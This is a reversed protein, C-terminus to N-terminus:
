LGLKLTFTFQKPMPLAVGESNFFEPDQGRLAKDAYLLAINNANFALAASKLKMRQAFSKPVTYNLAITKLRVFSGDVVRVTSYNYYNYPFTSILDKNTQWDIISPINTYQEDGPMIWRDKFENPMADLDSYTAKFKSDLRIKNQLQYSIFINLSLGKYTLTNNFGGTILPDVSGEYNLHDLNTSQLSVYNSVQGAQNIFQPIGTLHDLSHYVVSYLGRVPGGEIAGGEARVLDWIRPTNKLNRITNTNYGFTFNTRYAFNTNSYVRGGLTMEIGKSDMDAYNAIKTSQGGIGHVKITNILNFSNRKYMDINFNIRNNFLGLDLGLNTEYQSEWTLESNELSAIDIMNENNTLNGRKTLTNNYIVATNIANGMSATLGYTGRLKLQSIPTVQQMFEEEDINWAGSITWTPLYRATKSKGMKNSGDYRGTLNIVYKNNYAYNINSFMSVFRDYSYDVGFYSYNNESAQKIIHYDTFVTGGKYYQLGYGNFYTNQRDAYRIEQGLFASIQHIDDITTKYSLTHRGYFSKLFDENRIYFGGEPLVSLNDRIPTDPDNYLYGNGNAIIGDGNGDARYANAMNSYETAMHERTNKVYRFSGLVKYELNDLFKYGVEAQGKIDMVNINIKNEALENIINFPAYNKTFYELDGYEDWATLTRSTNLAYSYPNIDFDRSVEGFVASNLRGQTGPALQDRLSATVITSASLKDNFKYDTRINATYRKVDDAITWGNDKYFSGSFYHQVHETGSSVSLAHEQIFSNNFLIDFWNTNTRAYRRLYNEKAEPTNPMGYAGTTNDYLDIQQYMKAFVGGNQARLNQSFNLLGKKEMELYVSMQDVSNMINFSGYSPKLYTSYNGSYNVQPKGVKGKKTNIVVVGNMARAGYMATASADKLIELSEIDETNIGAVSSGILTLADGSSLQDNSINVVDELVVGDVVWLPKNDGTISTVGRVRLKPASGFTGSVNQVSVGAVRGELMRSVDTTGEIKIDKMQVTAASGTFLKKNITQYGTSVVDVEEIINNEEQLVIKIPAATIKIRQVQYGLFTILLTNGVQADIVFSGDQRSSTQKNTEIVTITVGGLKKANVNEITGTIPTQKHSISTAKPTNSEAISITNGVIKYTLDTKSLITKLVDEINDSYINLDSVAVRDILAKEYFFNYKTQKSLEEIVKHVTSNDTKLKIQQYSAFSAQSLLLFTCLAKLQRNLSM